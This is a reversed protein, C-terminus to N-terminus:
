EGSVRMRTKRLESPTLGFLIKFKDTFRSQSLYGCQEAILGIATETSQLLHLGRGLKVRDKIAQFHTGESTLKRRLTSESMALRDAIQEATSDALMNTTILQEVKHSLSPPEAISTVEEFGMHLILKLIEQKRSSWMHEPACTVWEIFQALTNSMLSTIQGGFYDKSRASRQQFISFDQYDFEILLAFYESGQSVNRMNINPTNSLFIFDGTECIDKEGSGLEKKGDLVCILLPKVIPVNLIHQDELASYVSFPMKPDIPLRAKLREKLEIM